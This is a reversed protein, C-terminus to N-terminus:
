NKFQKTFAVSGLLMHFDIGIGSVSGSDGVDRVTTIVAVLSM